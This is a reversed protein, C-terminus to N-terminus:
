DTVVRVEDGVKLMQAPKARAGNVRIHGGKAAATALSRSKFLRVSWCWADVRAM